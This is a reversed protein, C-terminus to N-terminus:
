QKEFTLQNHFAGGQSDPGDVTITLSRGDSSVVGHVKEIIKGNQKWIDDVTNAQIKSIVRTNEMGQTAAPIVEKGDSWPLSVSVAQGDARVLELHRTGDPTFTLTFSRFPPGPNFTSRALILRWTGTFPTIHEAEAGLLIAVGLLMASWVTLPAHKKM